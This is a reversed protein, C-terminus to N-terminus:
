YQVDDTKIIKFQLVTMIVIIALFIVAAAAAYGFNFNTFAEKYLFTSLIETAHSPGGGTMAIILDFAKFSQITTYAIVISAAPALLPWSIHRFRQWKGAGEIDAAEYLEKPISHLGAIFIVMVQGTHMWFQVFAISYIAINQNGLWSRTWGHLGLSELLNNLVGLNPDYMFTWTFAISVSAIITPFFYIARFIINPKTNKVLLLAFCLSLVTQFIVVVLTFKINNTLSHLFISDNTLLETYNSLGVFNYSESFGNWDTVSLYLSYVTPGAFFLGYLIFGPLIFLLLPWNWKRKRTNLQNSLRLSSAVGKEGKVVNNTSQM